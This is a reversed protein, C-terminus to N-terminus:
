FYGDHGREDTEDHPEEVEEGVDEPNRRTVRGLSRQTKCYMSSYPLNRNVYPQYTLPRYTGLLYPLLMKPKEHKTLQPENKRRVTFTSSWPVSVGSHKIKKVTHSHSLPHEFKEHM